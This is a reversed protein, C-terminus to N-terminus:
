STENLEVPHFPHFRADYTLKPPLHGLTMQGLSWNDKSSITWTCNDPSWKGLHSNYPPCNDSPYNAPLWQGLHPNDPPSQRPLLQEQHCNDRPLHGPPFQRPAITRLPITRPPITRNEKLVTCLINHFFTDVKRWKRFFYKRNLKFM